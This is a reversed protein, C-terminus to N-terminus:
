DTPDECLNEALFATTSAIFREPETFRSQGHDAKAFWELRAQPGAAQRIREVSTKAVLADADGYLLLTPRPPISALARVTDVAKPDIGVIKSAFWPVPSLWPALKPGVLYGWWGRSAEALTHFAGDLVLVDALTPEEALALVAAVGGMSSGVIGVKSGPRNRRVWECVARVDLRERFGMTSRSGSSHGHCRFDLLLCGMGMQSLRFALFAFESRNMLYGHALIVVPAGVPAPVWWFGIREGDATTVEHNEQPAGLQAPALFLPVRLPSVSFFAVAVLVLGYALVLVGAIGVLAWLWAM